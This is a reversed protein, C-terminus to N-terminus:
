AGVGLGDRFEIPAKDLRRVAHFGGPLAQEGVQVLVRAAEHRTEGAECDVAAVARHVAAHGRDCLADGAVPGQAGFIDAVGREIRDPREHQNAGIPHAAM